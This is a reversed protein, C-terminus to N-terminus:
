TSLESYTVECMINESKLKIKFFWWSSPNLKFNPESQFHDWIYCHDSTLYSLRFYAPANLKDGAWRNASRYFGHELLLVLFVWIIFRCHLSHFTFGHLILRLKRETITEKVQLCTSAFAVCKYLKIAIFHGFNNCLGHVIVEHSLSEDFTLITWTGDHHGSM